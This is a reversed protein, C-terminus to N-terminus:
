HPVGPPAGVQDCSSVGLLTMILILRYQISTHTLTLLQPQAQCYLTLNVKQPELDCEEVPKAIVAAKM